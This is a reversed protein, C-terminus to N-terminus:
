LDEGTVTFASQGADSSPAVEHRTIIGDMLVHPFGGVTAVIVVRIGPDFYGAPIMTSTLPSAKSTAFTIQFGGRTGGQTVQISSVADMVPKPAPLPVAPGILLTLYFGKLM